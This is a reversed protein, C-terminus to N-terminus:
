ARPEGARAADLAAGLPNQARPVIVIAEAGRALSAALEKPILGLEDVPVPVAVLGLALLLDRIASYAPDEIVVRDGARLHSQLVREVADFAGSTVTIADTPLGDARLAAAALAHLDPDTLEAELPGAQLKFDFNIRSLAPALPPLLAPDPLGVTLDRLGPVAPQRQPSYWARAPIRVAPRPAVRTGRRGDAVVLGRERLTRYASSVTAPSTGLAGALARVTPLPAGAELRGERIASEATAAIERATSGSIGAATQERGNSPDGTAPSRSQSSPNVAASNPSGSSERKGTQYQELEVM